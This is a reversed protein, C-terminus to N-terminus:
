VGFQKLHHDLHRYGLVGWAWAPLRGFFPHEPWRRDRTDSTFREINGQLRTMETDWEDPPRAILERPTPANRPFPLVCAILYNIPPIGLWTRRRRTALQGSALSFGDNLHALMQRADMRGWRPRAHPTLRSLRVSLDARRRAHFLSRM